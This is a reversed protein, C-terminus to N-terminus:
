QWTVRGIDRALREPDPFRKGRLVDALLGFSGNDPEPAEYPAIGWVNEKEKRFLNYMMGDFSNLLTVVMNM